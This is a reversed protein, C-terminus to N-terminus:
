EGMGSAVSSNCVRVCVIEKCARACAYAYACVYVEIHVCYLAYKTADLRQIRKNLCHPTVNLPAFFYAVPRLPKYWYKSPEM